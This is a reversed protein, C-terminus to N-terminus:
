RLTFVLLSPNARTCETYFSGTIIGDPTRLTDDAAASFTPAYHFAVHTCFALVPTVLRNIEVVQTRPRNEGTAQAEMAQYPHSTGKMAQHTAPNTIVLTQTVMPRTTDTVQPTARISSQHGMLQYKGKLPGNRRPM